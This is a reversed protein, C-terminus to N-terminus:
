KINRREKYVYTGYTVSSVFLVYFITTLVGVTQIFTSINSAFVKNILITSEAHSLDLIKDLQPAYAFVNLLVTILAGQLLCTITKIGSSLLLSREKIVMNIAEKYTIDNNLNSAFYYMHNVANSLVFLIFLILVALPALKPVMGLLFLIVLSLLAWVVYVLAITVEKKTIKIKLFLDKFSVVKGHTVKDVFNYQEVFYIFSIITTPILGVVILNVTQFLMSISVSVASYILIGFIIKFRNDKVHERVLKKINKM